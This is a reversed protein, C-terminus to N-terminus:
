RYGYPGKALTALILGAWVLGFLTLFVAFATGPDPNTAIYLRDVWYWLAFALIGAGSFYIAWRRRLWLGVASVLAVLASILGTLVLYLPGPVMGIELLFDWQDVALVARVLGSASFLLLVACLIYLLFPRRPAPQAKM